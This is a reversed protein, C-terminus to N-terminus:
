QVPFEQCFQVIKQWHTGPWYIKQCLPCQKFEEFSLSVFLPVRSKAEQPSVSLLTANCSPCRAFSLRLSLKFHSLVEKLQYELSEAKIFYTIEKARQFLARDKTLLMRGEFRAVAILTHDEAHRFYKTDYGVIRLWRALKGLMCDALFKEETM